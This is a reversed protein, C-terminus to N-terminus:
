LSRHRRRQSADQPRSDARIPIPVLVPAPRPAWTRLFAQLSRIVQGLRTHLFAILSPSTQM